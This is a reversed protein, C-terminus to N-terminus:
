GVKVKALENFYWLFKIMNEKNDPIIEYYEKGASFVLAFKGHMAFDTIAGLPIQTEGCCICEGNMVVEGYDLRNEKHEVVTYLTGKGARYEAGSSVHRTLMEKQESVYQAISKNDLYGYEDYKWTHACAKCGLTNGQTFLTGIEKCYPCIFLLHELGEALAKGRYSARLMEQREYAQEGLDQLIIDYIEAESMQALQEATYIGQVAGSIKGKRLSNSWMPSVFYGGSIRYTVLAVGAKQILKATSPVIPSPSGDWSRVGEPFFCVNAGKKVHRLISMVTAMASAGKPRLIPAFAFKLLKYARKWRAIHESGVFYMQKPFAVAVFLPDWDTVHNSLVIYQSPLGKAKQYRYGFKIKLFLAVLPRLLKYFFIHKKNM